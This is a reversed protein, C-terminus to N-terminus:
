FSGDKDVKTLGKIASWIFIIVCVLVFGIIFNTIM